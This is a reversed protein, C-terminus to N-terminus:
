VGDKELHRSVPPLLRPAWGDEVAQHFVVSTEKITQEIPIFSYGLSTIKRNDYHFDKYANRISDKTIVPRTNNFKSKVSELLIVIKALWQPAKISPGPVRLEEAMWGFIQKFTYNNENIIYRQNIDNYSLSDIVINAVDRVDVFGTSGPTYYKLGKYIKGFLRCSSSSWDGAGLVISPNLINADLGEAIGRWVEMEGLYKSRGYDSIHRGDSWKTKESIKKGNQVKALAAISSIHILRPIHHFLCANVIHETGQVNIEYLKEKDTPAYSVLGAAHIVGDSGEILNFINETDLLDSIHWTIHNGLSELLSGDSNKRRIAHINKYGRAVLEHLIYSGIFGTGGTVFIKGTKAM